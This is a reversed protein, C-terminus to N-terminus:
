AAMESFNKLVSMGFRHSKEPHFQLGIIHNKQFASTFTYGYETQFLRDNPDSLDFHYSHVFYFRASDPLKETLLSPKLAQVQNWGMHPVKLKKTTDFRFRKCRGKVWGFGDRDGEESRDLMLQAGLCIGLIPTNEKLVKKNLAEFLGTKTLSDVAHAFHGVGPLVIKDATDLDEPKSAFEVQAGIRKFMNAVSGLNGSEYDVIVLRGLSM